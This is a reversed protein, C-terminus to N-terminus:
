NNQSGNVLKRMYHLLISRVDYKWKVFYEGRVQEPWREEPIEEKILQITYFVDRKYEKMTLGGAYTDECYESYACFLDKSAGIKIIIKEM